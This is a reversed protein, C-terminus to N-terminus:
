EQCLDGGIFLMHQIQPPKPLPMWHTPTKIKGAGNHFCYENCVIEHKDALEVWIGNTVLIRGTEKPPNDKVSLWKM